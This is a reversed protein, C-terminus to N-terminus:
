SVSEALIYYKISVTQPATIKSSVIAQFYIDTSNSVVRIQAAIVLAGVGTDYALQSLPLPAVAGFGDDMFGVVYPAYGLTHPVITQFVQSTATTTWSLSVTNTGVIKFTNRESNFILDTDAGTTANKGSKAVKLVPQGAPTTALYINPVGELDNMLIGSGLNGPLAGEIFADKGTPGTYAKTVTDNDLKAFNANTQAIRSREDSNGNIPLIKNPM